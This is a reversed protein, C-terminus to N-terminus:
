SIQPLSVIDYQVTVGIGAVGANISMAITCLNGFLPCNGDNGQGAQSMTGYTNGAVDILWCHAAANFSNVSHLRYAMGLAPAPLIQVNGVVSSVRTALLGGVAFTGIPLGPATLIAGESGIATITLTINTTQACALHVQLTDGANCAIPVGIIAVGNTVTTNLAFNAEYFELTTTNEVLLNFLQSGAGALDQMYLRVGQTAGSILFNQTFPAATSLLSNKYLVQLSQNVGVGALSSQFQM